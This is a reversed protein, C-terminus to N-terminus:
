AVGKRDGLRAETGVIADNITANNNNNIKNIIFSFPYLDEM